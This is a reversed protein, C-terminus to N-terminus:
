FANFNELKARAGDKFEPEYEYRPTGSLYELTCVATGDHTGDAMGFIGHYLPPGSSLHMQTVSLVTVKDIKLKLM